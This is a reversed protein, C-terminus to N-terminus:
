IAEYLRSDSRECLPCIYSRIFGDSVLRQLRKSTNAFDTKLVIALRLTSIPRRIRRLYDLIEQLRRNKPYEPIKEKRLKPKPLLHIARKSTILAIGAKPTPQVKNLKKTKRIM